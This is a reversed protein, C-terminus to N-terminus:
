KCDCEARIRSVAESQLEIAVESQLEVVVALEAANTTILDAQVPMESQPAADM